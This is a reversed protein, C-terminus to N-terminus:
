EKLSYILEYIKVQKKMIEQFNSYIESLEAATLCPEITLLSDQIRDNGRQVLAICEAIRRTYRRKIPTVLDNKM